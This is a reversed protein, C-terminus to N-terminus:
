LGRDDLWTGCHTCARIVYQRTGGKGRRIGGGCSKCRRGGLWGRASPGPEGCEPCFSGADGILRQGCAPCDMADRAVLILMCVVVCVAFGSEMWLMLPGPRGAGVAILVVGSGISCGALMGLRRYRRYLAGFAARVKAREEAGAASDEASVRAPPQRADPQTQEVEEREKRSQCLDLRGTDGREDTQPM